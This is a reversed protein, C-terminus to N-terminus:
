RRGIGGEIPLGSPVRGPVIEQLNRAAPDTLAKMFETVEDVVQPPFVVGELLPDRTALIDAKNDLVTLQLSPELQSINFELLKVDSESYHDVFERLDFFAGNHGYPATLEVNRLAPTRFAYRDALIGTERGRGFDDLGGLGDGKGPGFQAVAV